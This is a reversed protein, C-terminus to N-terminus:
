GRPKATQDLRLTFAEESTNESVNLDIRGRDGDPSHGEITFSGIPLSVYFAGHDDARIGIEPVAATSHVITVLACAVPRGAADIVIGRKRFQPSM